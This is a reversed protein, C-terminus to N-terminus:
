LRILFTESFPDLNPNFRPDQYNKTGWREQFVSLERRYRDIQTPSSDKGRSKSEHHILVAHPVYVNQWGARELKLCLDVDNFAVALSEEDLGGVSLYKEKEVVLCAGTVASIFQTVHAQSFYGPDQDKLDRHAHGAAQGIGVIVGAHQITGDPYLLKAGAAGVHPQVAYRMLEKLWDAGVVETDNNLLCVFRGAAEGVAYNNIRSYNYPGPCPLVRVKRDITVQDFYQATRKEVSGNDIILVEFPAYTTQALVSEVCSRLLDLKDKTPIIISVLPAESPLPWSVKVTGFPGHTAAVNLNSLLRQVTEVRSSGDTCRDCRFHAVIHAVHLPPAGGSRVAAILMEDFSFRETLNRSVALAKSSRIAVAGSLYDKALFFEENWRPKFWPNRRTGSDDLHDHDGYVIDATPETQLAEALRFLALSPLEDGAMVPLLFDAAGTVKELDSKHVTDTAQWHDFLTWDPYVQRDISEVTRRVDSESAGPSVMLWVAFTPRWPWSAVISAARGSHEEAREVDRIWADYAFPLRAGAARIQNRARVRRGTVQWWLSRLAAFPRWPLVRLFIQWFTM